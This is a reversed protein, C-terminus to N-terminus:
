ANVNFIGGQLSCNTCLLNGAWLLSAVMADQNAPEVFPKLFFDARPSVAWHLVNENLMYIRSNGSVVGDTVKSDVIWPVNNFLLNTFGASALLEDHGGPQRTYQVAYAGSGATNNLHYYRNWQDQRSLIITPHQGGRSASTFATLLGQMSLSATGTLGQPSANWWANATRAIGGYNPNGITTGVGVLGALGDIDKADSVGDGYLGAALNEGMEMAAQDSQLRLFNAISEPSDVRIMTLGDVAWTVYHQKWDWQASRITDSPTTNFVDYGRYAGGTNFRQYMLPADIQTGGRIVKKNARMLRYLLVNSNYINDTIQPIIYNRAITTVVNTGIQVAM